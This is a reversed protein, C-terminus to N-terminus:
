NNNHTNRKFVLLWYKGRNKTKVSTVWVMAARAKNNSTGNTRCIETKRKKVKTGPMKSMLNSLNSLGLRASDSRNETPNLITKKITNPKKIFSNPKKPKIESGKDVPGRNTIRFIIM